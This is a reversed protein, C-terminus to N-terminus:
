EEPQYIIYKKEIRFPDQLERLKRLSEDGSDQGLNLYKCQSLNEEIFYKQLTLPLGEIEENAKLFYVAGTESDLVGGLIFGEIKGDNVLIGGACDLEDFHVLVEYIAKLEGLIGLYNSSERLMCWDEQLELCERALVVDMNLYKFKSEQQFKEMKEIELLFEEKAPDFFKRSDYIYDCNDLDLRNKFDESYSFFREFDDEPVRHLEPIFKENEVSDICLKYM